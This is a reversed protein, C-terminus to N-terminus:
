LSGVVTAKNKGSKKSQYMAIDAQKLQADFDFKDTAACWKIGLSATISLSLESSVTINLKRIGQLLRNSLSDLESEKEIAVAFAFEEGGYRCFADDSRFFQNLFSALEILVLDGVDHGYTDNLSKFNDIDLLGIAIMLQRRNCFKVLKNAQDIFYRRNPVNTLPDLFALQELKAKAKQLELTRKEVINELERKFVKLDQNRKELQAQNFKRESVDREIAAFHTVDGYKNKLPIINMEVWYPRGNIDYNMLTESVALHNTLATHIRSKALDDTLSGQLIRPTEGLIDEKKYGTFKEFAHNVYVIKPGIPYEINEAETVIVMDQTNEVIDKFSFLQKINSIDHFTIVIFSSENGSEGEIYANIMFWSIEDKTNDIVGLVENSLRGQERKVKNVPYDEVLLKKGADNLFSWSPDFSDKGIIQKYTLRLLSLATPNAYVISTDWKHIVVGIHAHELLKKLTLESIDSMLIFLKNM